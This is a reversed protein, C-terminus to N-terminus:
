INAKEVDEDAAVKGTVISLHSSFNPTELSIEDKTNLHRM